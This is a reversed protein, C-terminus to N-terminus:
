LRNEQQLRKWLDRAEASAAHVICNHGFEPNFYVGNMSSYSAVMQHFLANYGHEDREPLTYLFGCNITRFSDKKWIQRALRIAEEYNSSSVTTQIEQKPLKEKFWVYQNPTMQRLFLYSYTGTERISAVHILPANSM